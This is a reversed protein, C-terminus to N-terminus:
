VAAHSLAMAATFSPHRDHEAALEPYHRLKQSAVDAWRRWALGDPVLSSMHELADAIAASALRRFEPKALHFRCDHDCLSLNPLENVSCCRGPQEPPKFCAVVGPLIVTLDLSGDLMDLVNGMDVEAQSRRGQPVNVLLSRIVDAVGAKFREAGGGQLKQRNRILDAANKRHEEQAMARLEDLIRSNALIYRMTQLLHTHGFLRRLIAPGGQLALIVLRATTKRYRHHHLSTGDLFADFGKSAAFDKLVGDVQRMPECTRFLKKHSRWMGEFDAEETIEIYEKQSELFRGATECLPWDRLDGSSSQSVKHETGDLFYTWTGDVLRKSLSNLKLSSVESWRPGLLLSVLQITALQCDSALSRLDRVCTVELGMPWARRRIAARAAAAWGNRPLLALERLCENVAPRVKDLMALCWEGVAAVFEDGLPQFRRDESRDESERINDFDLGPHVAPRTTIVDALGDYSEGSGRRWYSCTEYIRPFNKLDFKGFDASARAMDLADLAALPKGESCSFAAIKRFTRLRHQMTAIAVPKRPRFLELYAFRRIALGCVRQMPREALDGPLRMNMRLYHRPRTEYERFWASPLEWVDDRVRVIAGSSGGPFLAMGMFAEPDDFAATGPMPYLEGCGLHGASWGVSTLTAWLNLKELAVDVTM